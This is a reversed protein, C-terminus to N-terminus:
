QTENDDAKKKDKRQNYEAHNNHNHGTHFGILTFVVAIGHRKPEDSLENTLDNWFWKALNDKHLPIAEKM